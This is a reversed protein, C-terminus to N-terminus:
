SGIDIKSLFRQCANRARKDTLINRVTPPINLQRLNTQLESRQKCYKPCQLLVHQVDEIAECGHRCNSSTSQNTRKLFANCPFCGSLMQLHRVSGTKSFMQSSIRERTWSSILSKTWTAKNHSQWLGSLHHQIRAQLTSKFAPLTPLSLLNEDSTSMLEIFSTAPQYFILLKKNERVSKFPCIRRPNPLDFTASKGPRRELLHIWTSKNSAVTEAM